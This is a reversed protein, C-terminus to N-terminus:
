EDTELDPDDDAQEEALVDDLSLEKDIEGLEANPIDKTDIEIEEMESAGLDIPDKYVEGDVEAAKDAKEMEKLCFLCLDKGPLSPNENCASCFELITERPEEGKMDRYCVSCVASDDLVYNLECRPCKRLSM